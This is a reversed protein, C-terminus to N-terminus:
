PLLYESVLSDIVQQLNDASEEYRQAEEQLRTDQPSDWNGEAVHTLTTHGLALSGSVGSSALLQGGTRRFLAM